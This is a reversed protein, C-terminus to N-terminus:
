KADEQLFLASRIAVDCNSNSFLKFTGLHPFAVFKGGWPARGVTMSVAGWGTPLAHLNKIQLIAAMHKGVESGLCVIWEPAMGVSFEQWLKRAFNVAERPRELDAWRQSRFPVFHASAVEDTELGLISVLRQIQVQLPACGPRASGWSEVFYASGDEQSWKPGHEVTGSPNLSVILLRPNSFSSEPSTMFRWGAKYGLREYEKQIAEYSAVSSM